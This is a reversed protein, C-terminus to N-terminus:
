EVGDESISLLYRMSCILIIIIIFSAIVLLIRNMQSTDMLFPLIILYFLGNVCILVLLTLITTIIADKNDIFFQRM